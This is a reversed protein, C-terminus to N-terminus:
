YCIIVHPPVRKIGVSVTMQVFWHVQYVTMFNYAHKVLNCLISKTVLGLYFGLINPTIQLRFKLCM